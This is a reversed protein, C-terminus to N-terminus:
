PQFRFGEKVTQVIKQAAPEAVLARKGGCTLTVAGYSRLTQFQILTLERDEGAFLNVDVRRAAQGGLEDMEIRTVRAKLSPPFAREAEEPKMTGLLEVLKPPKGTGDDPVAGDLIRVNCALGDKEGVHVVTAGSVKAEAWAAPYLFSFGYKANSYRKAATEAGSPAALGLVAIGIALCALAVAVLRFAAIM